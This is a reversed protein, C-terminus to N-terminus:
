DDADEDNTTPMTALAYTLASTGLMLGLLAILMGEPILLSLTYTILFTSAITLLTFSRM